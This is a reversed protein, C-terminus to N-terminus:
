AEDLRGAIAQRIWALSGSTRMFIDHHNGDNAWSVVGVLIWRGNKEVLLPGGSDGCGLHIWNANSLRRGACMTLDHSFYEAGGSAQVCSEDGIIEVDGRRLLSDYATCAVDQAGWGLATANAGAWSQTGDDLAVPQVESVPHNLKLLALDYLWGDEKFKPHPIILEVSRAVAKELHAPKRYDARHLEVMTPALGGNVCHAATLVWRDAVLTGGCRPDSLLDNMLLAVFPFEGPSSVVEGNVMSAQPRYAPGSDGVHSVAPGYGPGTAARSGPQTAPGYGPRYGPRTAPGTALKLAGAIRAASACLLLLTVRM